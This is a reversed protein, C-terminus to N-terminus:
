KGSILDTAPLPNTILEGQAHKICKQMTTSTQYWSWQLQSYREQDQPSDKQLSQVICFTWITTTSYRNYLMCVFHEVHSSAHWFIKWTVSFILSVLSILLHTTKGKRVFASTTDCWTLTHLVPLINCYWKRWSAVKKVNILRRKNGTGLILFFVWM